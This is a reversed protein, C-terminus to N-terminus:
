RVPITDVRRHQSTGEKKTTTGTVAGRGMVNLRNAPVGGDIYFQEVARARDESLQQPNREGPAAFGEVRANLNPCELLIELNEQLAARGEATLTSSNRGFFVSNMETIESCIAPECPEARVTLTRTTSGAENSATLTVTYTGPESYTHTPNAGTGTTGDGFNWEYTLPSDGRVNASFQVTTPQCVDFTQPTATVTVIEAPAPPPTVTVTCSRTSTGRGAQNSATFNVTYTGATAFSHTAVEGTATTGDGFNWRFEVPPSARDINTSASFTATEGAQLTTPCELAIVQVPVFPSRFNIRLGGGAFALFDMDDENANLDLAEDDISAILTGELFLGIRDTLAIDLGLGGMPTFGGEINDNIKGFTYGAGAQLYPSIRNPYFFNLRGMLGVTHRWDSSTNHDIVPLVNSENFNIMTYQGGYYTLGLAGGLSSQGFRTAYGLEGGVSFGVNDIFTQLDNDPNNDRDGGYHNVGVRAKLYVTGDARLSQASASDIMFFMLAVAVLPTLLRNRM